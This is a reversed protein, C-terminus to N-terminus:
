YKSALLIESVSKLKPNGLYIGYPRSLETSKDTEICPKLECPKIAIASKALGASNLAHLNSYAHVLGAAWKRGDASHFSVAMNRRRFPKSM